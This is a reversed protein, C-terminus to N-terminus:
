SATLGLWARVQNIGGFGIKWCGSQEANAILQWIHELISEEENGPSQHGALHGDDGKPTGSPVTADDTFMPFFLTDGGLVQCVLNERKITVDTLTLDGGKSGHCTIVWGEGLDRREVPISM